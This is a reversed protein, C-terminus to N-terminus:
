NCMVEGLRPKGYKLKKPFGGTFFFCGSHKLFETKSAKKWQGQIDGYKWLDPQASRASLTLKSCSEVPDIGVKVESTHYPSASHFFMRKRNKAAM